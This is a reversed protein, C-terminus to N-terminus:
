SLFLAKAEEATNSNGLAWMLKTCVAEITMKEASLVGLRAALVGIPYESLNVGDYMCQSACVAIMGARLAREVAPLFNNEDNPVGGAGFGEIVVARYKQSVAYDLIDPTTGPILKILMVREDVNSLVEFKDAPMPPEPTQWEIGDSATIAAYPANVSYFANFESTHMKKAFKGGVVKDGFALYVGPRGSCAVHFASYINRKGDTEPHEIPLQAGTVVVPKGLNKLMWSLAAATYAMTDTGHTVVFGDYDAYDAGIADAMVSWHHPQINSSDLSLIEKCTIDCLGHLRPIMRVMAAGDVKPVLGDPGPESAITGGTSIMLIKKM